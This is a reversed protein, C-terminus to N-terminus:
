PGTLALLGRGVLPILYSWSTGSQLTLRKMTVETRFLGYSVDAGNKCLKKPNGLSLSRRSSVNKFSNAKQVAAATKQTTGSELSRTSTFCM